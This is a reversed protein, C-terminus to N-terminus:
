EDDHKDLLEKIGGWGHGRHFTREIQKMAEVVVGCYIQHGDEESHVVHWGSCLPWAWKTQKLKGEGVGEASSGQSHWFGNSVVSREPEECNM